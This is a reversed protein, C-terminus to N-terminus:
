RRGPRRNAAAGDRAGPTGPRGRARLARGAPGARCGPHRRRVRGAGAARRGARPASRAPRPRRGAPAARRRQQFPQQEHVAELRVRGFQARALRGGPAAVRPRGGLQRSRLLGELGLQHRGRQQRRRPRAQAEAPRRQAHPAVTRVAEQELAAETQAAIFLHLALEAAQFVAGEHVGYQLFEQLRPRGAGFRQGVAVAVARTAASSADGGRAEAGAGGFQRVAQEPQVCEPATTSAAPRVHSELPEPVPPRHAELHREPQRQDIQVGPQPAFDRQRRRRRRAPAPAARRLAPPAAPRAPALDHQVALMSRM